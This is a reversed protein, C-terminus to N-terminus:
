YDVRDRDFGNVGTFTDNIVFDKFLCFKDLVIKFYQFIIFLLSFFMILDHNFHTKIREQVGRMDGKNESITVPHYRSPLPISM